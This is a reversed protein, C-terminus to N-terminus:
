GSVEEESQPLRNDYSSNYSISVSVNGQGEDEVYYSDFLYGANGVSKLKDSIISFEDTDMYSETMHMNIRVILGDSADILVRIDSILEYTTLIIESVIRYADLLTADDDMSGDTVLTVDTNIAGISVYNLIEKIALVLDGPKLYNGGRVILLMNSYRKIYAGLVCASRLRNRLETDALTDADKLAEEIRMLYPRVAGAIEDYITNQIELKAQERRIGAQEVLMANNAKLAENTERLRNGLENVASIDEQWYIRGGPIDGAYLKTNEDLMIAYGATSDKLQAPINRIARGSRLVVTGDADTIQASIGSIDFIGAYDSNSPIMGNHILMEWFLIYTMNCVMPMTIPVVGAIEINHAADGYLIVILIYHVIVLLSAFMVRKFGVRRYCKILVTFFSITILGYMWIMSIYFLPGHTYSTNWDTFGDNFRFALQHLDNTQILLCILMCPIILLYMARNLSKDQDVGIRMAMFFSLLAIINLPIYYSYLLQRQMFENGQFIAYKCIQSIHMFVLLAAIAYLIQRQRLVIFRQNVANMWVVCAICCVLVSLNISLFTNPTYRCLVALVYIGAIIYITKDTYRLTQKTNSM